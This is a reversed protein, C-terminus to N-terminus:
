ATAAVVGASDRVSGSDGTEEPEYEFEEVVIRTSEHGKQHRIKQSIKRGFRKRIADLDVPEAIRFMVFVDSQATLHRSVEQFRRATYIVNIGRHRGYRILKDLGPENFNPACFYDIEEVYFDCDGLEYVADAAFNFDSILQAGTGPKFAVRFTKNKEVFDLLDKRSDTVLGARYEGLTDFAIARRSARFAAMAHYTKGSGKHGFIGTLTNKM